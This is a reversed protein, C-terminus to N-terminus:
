EYGLLRRGSKYKFENVIGGRNFTPQDESSLSWSIFAELNPFKHKLPHQLYRENWYEYAMIMDDIEPDYSAYKKPVRLKSENDGDTNGKDEENILWWEDSVPLKIVNGNLKELKRKDYIEKDIM